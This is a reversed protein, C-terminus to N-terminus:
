PAEGTTDPAATNPAAADAAVGLAANLNGSRLGALDLTVYEYGVSTVAAHLEDALEAARLLDGSPVEIRATSDYHRVRVDTFGLARVAHEARDIRSLLPVSVPTGYPIRSSLCPMAPRDWVTVNWHAALRRINVKTLGAEVLPFRAGRESAARQGPRHDGLDDINVGLVVTADREEAIPSLQDMLASKCWYCRDSDNVLYRPDSLEDTEAPRWAVGHDAALSRCHELEGSSLSASDATVALHTDGRESRGAAALVLASDVGGSFAIVMPGVDALAAAVRRELEAIPADDAAVDLGAAPLRGADITAPGSMHVPYPRSRVVTVGSSTATETFSEQSPGIM